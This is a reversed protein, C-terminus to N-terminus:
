ANLAGKRIYDLFIFYPINVVHEGDKVNVADKGVYNLFRFYRINVAHEGEM